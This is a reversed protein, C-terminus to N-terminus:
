PQSTQPSSVVTRRAKEIEQSLKVVIKDAIDAMAGRFKAGSSEQTTSWIVDGNARVLRVSARAEHKRERSSSSENDTLGAGTYARSKGTQSVGNQIHAGLTESSHHEDVFTVDDSSGKMIADAREPNETIAFLKSNQLAAILIDRMQDSGNPGGLQDVYVRQIRVLAAACDKLEIAPSEVSFALFLFLPFLKM